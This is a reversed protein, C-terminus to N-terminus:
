NVFRKEKKASPICYNKASSRGLKKEDDSIIDDGNIAQKEIENM